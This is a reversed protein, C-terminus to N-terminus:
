RRPPPRRGRWQASAPAAPMRGAAARPSDPPPPRRERGDSKREGMEGVAREREQREREGMEGAAAPSQERLQPAATARISPARDGPRRTRRAASPASPWPPLAFPLPLPPM